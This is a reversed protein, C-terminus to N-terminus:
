LMIWWIQLMIRGGAGGFVGGGQAPTRRGAQQGPRPLVCARDAIGAGGSPIAPSAWHAGVHGIRGATRVFCLIRCMCLLVCAHMHVYVCMYTRVYTRAYMHVHMCRALKSVGTRRLYVGGGQICRAVKSVGRRRLYVDGGQICRAVKSAGRRRLYV